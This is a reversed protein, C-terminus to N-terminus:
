AVILALILGILLGLTVYLKEAREAERRSDAAQAELAKAAGDLLMEQASRGSEGLKDFLADLIRRDQDTLCAVASPPRAKRKIRAWAQAASGGGEMVGSLQVLLPCDSMSLGQRVPEFLSIMRLRLSRVGAALGALLETRRRAAGALSKGCMTCGLTLAAALILRLEM